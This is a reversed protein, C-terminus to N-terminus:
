TVFDEFLQSVMDIFLAAKTCPECLYFECENCSYSTTQQEEGPKSLCTVYPSIDETIRKFYNTKCVFGNTNRHNKYSERSVM